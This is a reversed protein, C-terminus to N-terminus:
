SANVREQGQQTGIILCHKPCKEVCLGCETCNAYDVVPLNDELRLAQHTCARVCLGCAICGSNCVALVAKGNEPNQCLLQLFHQEEHLRIASRPCAKVCLGCGICLEQVVSMRGNKDQRIADSPCVQACDGLGVCGYSCGLTSGILSQYGLCTHIDKYQPPNKLSPCCHIVAIKVPGTQASRGLLSGIQDAVAQGGVSCQNVEATGAVMAEAAGRCGPLGCAGCNIGPLLAEVEDIRPDTEVRFRREVLALIFGFLVGLGGMVVGALVIKQVVGM